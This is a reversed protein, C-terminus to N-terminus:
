LASKNEGLTNLIKKVHALYNVLMIARLSNAETAYDIDIGHLVGHRNLPGYLSDEERKKDRHKTNVAVSTVIRLPEIFWGYHQIPYQDVVKKTKPTDSQKKYLQVGFIENSIGDAQALLVPISLTYLGQRHAQFADSIIQVRHPWHSEVQHLTKDIQTKAFNQIEMEVQEFQENDIMDALEIIGSIAADLYSFYWGTRICHYQVKREKESLEHLMKCLSSALEKTSRKISDSIVKGARGLEQVIQQNFQKFHDEIQRLVENHQPLYSPFKFKPLKM